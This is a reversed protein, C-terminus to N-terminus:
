RRCTPSRRTANRCGAEDVSGFSFLPAARGAGAAAAPGAGPPRAPLRRGGPGAGAGRRRRRGGPRVGAVLQRGAPGDGADGAAGPRSPESAGAAATRRRARAAPVRSVVLGPTVGALAPVWHGADFRARPDGVLWAMAASGPLLLATGGDPVTRAEFQNAATVGDVGGVVDKRVATGPPLARGLGPAAVRGLMRRGAAPDPWWCPPATRSPPCAAGLPPSRWPRPGAPVSADPPPDSTVPEDRPHDRATGPLGLSTRRPLDFRDRM